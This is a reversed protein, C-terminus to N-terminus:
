GTKVMENKQLSFKLGVFAPFPHTVLWVPIAELYPAVVGKDTFSRTFASQNLFVVMQPLIGGALYVGGRAGMTLAADGAVAGLFACFQNLVKIAFPDQQELAAAAISKPDSINDAPVGQHAAMAQYLNVLGQGSLVREAIVVDFRNRLHSIIAAEDATAAPLTVHGGEGPLVHWHDDTVPVLSAVGLGTGPGIVALPAASQARGPKILIKDADGLHPLALAQAAFDNVVDFRDWGFAQQVDAVTFSWGRNTITQRGDILPGAVAWAARTIVIHNPLLSLYHRCVDIINDFDGGAIVEIHDITQDPMVLAFRAHTGGIDAILATDSM